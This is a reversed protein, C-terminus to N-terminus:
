HPSLNSSFRRGAAKLTIDFQSEGGNKIRINVSKYSKFGPKTKIELVYIGATLNKFRYNGDADSVANFLQNKGKSLKLEVGSIAAGFNDSIMGSLVNKGTLTKIPKGTSNTQGYSVFVLSFFTILAAGFIIKWHNFKLIQEKM